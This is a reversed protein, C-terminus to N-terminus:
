QCETTQIFDARRRLEQRVTTTQDPEIPTFRLTAGNPIEEFAISMPPLDSLHLGHGQGSGHEGNHGVGLHAGPGHAASVDLARRRLDAVHDRSVFTLELGGEVDRAAIETGPVGLPCSTSTPAHLIPAERAASCATVAFTLAAVSSRVSLSM